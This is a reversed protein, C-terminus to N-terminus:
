NLVKALLQKGKPTLSFLLRNDENLKQGILGKAMLVAITENFQDRPLPSKKLIDDISRDVYMGNDLMLSMVIIDNESLGATILPRAPKITETKDPQSSVVTTHEHTQPVSQSVVPQKETFTDLLRCTAASFVICLGSLIFINLPKRGVTLLLDSSVMNLFLPVTLSAVGGLFFYKLLSLREERESRIGTFYNVSGGLFGSIVMITMILLIMSGDIHSAANLIDTHTPDSM